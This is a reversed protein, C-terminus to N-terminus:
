KNSKDEALGSEKGNWQGQIERLRLKLDELTEKTTM